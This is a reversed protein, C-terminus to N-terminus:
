LCIFAFAACRELPLLINMKVNCRFLNPCVLLQAWCTKGLVHRVKSLDKKRKELRGKILLLLKLMFTKLPHSIGSFFCMPKNRGRFFFGDNLIIQRLITFYMKLMQSGQNLLRITLNIVTITFRYFHWLKVWIYLCFVVHIDLICM